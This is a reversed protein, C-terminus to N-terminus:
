HHGDHTRDATEYTCLPQPIAEATTSTLRVRQIASAITNRCRYSESTPQPQSPCRSIPVRPDLRADLHPSAKSM